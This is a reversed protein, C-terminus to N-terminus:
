SMVLVGLVKGTQQAQVALPAVFLGFTLLVALEIRRM